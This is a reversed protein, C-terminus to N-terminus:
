FIFFLFVVVGLNMTMMNGDTPCECNANDNKDGNNGGTNDGPIQQTTVQQGCLQTDGYGEPLTLDFNETKDFASLSCPNPNKSGKYDVKELKVCGSFAKDGIEKDTSAISITKM